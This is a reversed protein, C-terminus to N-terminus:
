QITQINQTSAKEREASDTQFIWFQHVLNITFNRRLLGPVHYPMRRLKQPKSTTNRVEKSM